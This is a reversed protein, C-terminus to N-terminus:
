RRAPARGEGDVAEDQRPIAGRDDELDDIREGTGERGPAESGEARWYSGGHRVDGPPEREHHGNRDHAVPEVHHHM